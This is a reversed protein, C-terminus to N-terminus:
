RELSGSYDNLYRFEILIPIGYKEVISNIFLHKVLTSKGSGASGFITVFNSNFFLNSIKDTNIIEANGQLNLPFYIDYLYVPKNGNLITKIYSYRQIQKIFYKELSKDFLRKTENTVKGLLSFSEKVLQPIFSKIATQIVIQEM